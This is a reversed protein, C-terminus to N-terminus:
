FKEIRIGVLLIDDVQQLSGQWNFIEAKIIQEQEAMPKEYIKLLLEKLQKIKFKKGKEGGFQDTYGDSFIYITDNKKLQIEYDDFIKTIKESGGVSLATPKYEAIIGDRILFLPRKAGAYQFIGTATYYACLAIDMGDKMNMESSSGDNVNMKSFDGKPKIVENDKNLNRSIKADLLTLAKGPTTVESDSIIQTLYDNGILSMFAGPIGHGTCDAVAFLLIDHIYAAWFFDGSVIDRPKFFVFSDPFIKKIFDKGPLIADQIRKAYHISATIDQNKEEILKYASALEINKVRYLEKETKERELDFQARITNITTKSVSKLMESKVTEHKKFYDLAKVIEGANEYSSSINNLIESVLLKEGMEEAAKLAAFHFELSKEFNKEISYTNGINTGASAIGRLHHIQASKEFSDFFYKKASFFDKQAFYVKGMNNLVDALGLLDNIESLIRVTKEMFKLAEAYKGMKQYVYGINGFNYATGQLDNLPETIQLADFYYKISKEDEDISHYINGITRIVTAEAHRNELIKFIDWSNQLDKLAKEYLSLLYYATGSCRYSYALGSKYDIKGSHDLTQSALELSKQPYSRRIDWAYKNIFDIREKENSLKGLSILYEEESIM